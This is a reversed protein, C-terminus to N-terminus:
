LGFQSWDVDLWDFEVKTCQEEPNREIESKIGLRRRAVGSCTVFAPGSLKEDCFLCQNLWGRDGAGEVNNRAMFGTFLVTMCTFLCHRATSVMNDAWCETCERSFGIGDELCDVVDEYSGLVVNVGCKKSTKAITERTDVYIKIDEVNSCQGCAGCHAVQYGADIADQKTPFTVLPGSPDQLHIGCVVETIFNYSTDPAKAANTNEVRSGIKM